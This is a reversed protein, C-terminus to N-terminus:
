YTSLERRIKALDDRDPKFPFSRIDDGPPSDGYPRNCAVNGKEDPCGSTMFPTGLRVYKELAKTEMGFALIRGLIDSSFREVRTVGEDILWRAMQLRRFAPASAQPRNELASSAEPYFSFLHTVGGEDRISQFLRAMEVETEGLGVILHIGVMGVGFIDVAKEFTEWYKEWRHPGGVGRGRFMEFLDPNAADFAIGIREAGEAKLARLSEEDMVTPAILVSIPIDSARHIKGTLFLTDELAKPHTIMSLCVRKLLRRRKEMAELIGDLSYIPWKVRIFSKKEFEGERARSLGCYACSGRCGEDYTLLLNLCTLRANRHFRGGEFGLTMAAALSMRM